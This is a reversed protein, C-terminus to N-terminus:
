ITLPSGIQYYIEKMAQPKLSICQKDSNLKDKGDDPWALTSWGAIPDLSSAENYTSSFEFGQETFANSVPEASIKRRGTTPNWTYAGASEYREVLFTSSSM